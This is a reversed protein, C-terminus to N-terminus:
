RWSQAMKLLKPSHSKLTQPLVSKFVSFSSPLPLFGFSFCNTGGWCWEWLPNELPGVAVSVPYSTKRVHQVNTKHVCFWRSTCLLKMWYNPVSGENARSVQLVFYIHTKKRVICYSKSKFPICLNCLRVCQKWKLINSYKTQGCFSQNRHIDQRITLAIKQFPTWFQWKDKQLVKENVSVCTTWRSSRAWHLILFTFPTNQCPWGEEGGPTWGVPRLALFLQTGKLCWIM